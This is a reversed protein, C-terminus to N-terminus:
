EITFQYGATVGDRFLGTAEPCLRIKDPRYASGKTEQSEMLLWTADYATGAAVIAENDTYAADAADVTAHTTDVVNAIRKSSRNGANTAGPTWLLRGPDDTVSFTPASAVVDRSGAAVTLTRAPTPVVAVWNSFADLVGVKLDAQSGLDEFVCRCGDENWVFQTSELRVVRMSYGGGSNDGLGLPHSLWFLSGKEMTALWSRCTATIRRRPLGRRLSAATLLELALPPYIADGPIEADLAEALDPLTTLVGPSEVLLYRGKADNEWFKQQDSSWRLLVRRAPAGRQQSFYPLEENWDGIIDAATIHTLGADVLAKDAPTFAGAAQAHLKDDVGVWVNYAGAAAVKAIGKSITDTPYYLLGIGRGGKTAGFSTSDVGGIGATSHDRVLATMIWPGLGRGASKPVPPDGPARLGQESPDPELYLKSKDIQEAQEKSVPKVKVLVLWVEFTDGVANTIERPIFEFRVRPPDSTRQGATAEILPQGRNGIFLPWTTGYLNIGVQSLSTTLPEKVSAWALFVLTGSSEGVRLLPVVQKGYLYPVTEDLNDTFAPLVAAFESQTLVDDDYRGNWTGDSGGSASSKIDRVTFAIESRGLLRDDSSAMPLTVTFGDYDPPGALCMTPTIAQEYLAGDAQDRVGLYYRGTLNLFSDSRYEVAAAASTTGRIWKTLANDHNHLRMSVQVREPDGGETEPLSGGVPEIAMRGEVLGTATKVDRTSWVGAAGSAFTGRFVVYSDYAAKSRAIDYFAM